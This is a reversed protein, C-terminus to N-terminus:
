EIYIYKYSKESKFYLDGNKSKKSIWEIENGNSDYKYQSYGQPRNDFFEEEESIKDLNNYTYKHEIVFEKPTKAFDYVRRREVEPDGHTNHWIKSCRWFTVTGNAAYHYENEETDYEKSGYEGVKNYKYQEYTGDYYYIYKEAIDGKDDYLTVFRKSSGVTESKKLINKDYLYTTNSGGSSEKIMNGAQDYEYTIVSDGVSKSKLNGKEDYNYIYNYKEKGGSAYSREECTLVCKIKNLKKHSDKYEGLSKFLAYAEEYDKNHIYEDAQQYNCENIMTASDKYGDISKFMKLAEVFNRNNYFQYGYQYSAEKLLEKSDKYDGLGKLASFAKDYVGSELCDKGKQYTLEKIKVVNDKYVGINTYLNIAEDYKKEQAMTDALRYKAEILKEKSDKYGGTISYLRIAENYFANGFAKEAKNYIHAMATFYSVIAIIICVLIGGLLKKHKKFYLCAIGNIKGASIDKISSEEPKVFQLYKKKEDELGNRTELLDSESNSCLQKSGNLNFENSRKM